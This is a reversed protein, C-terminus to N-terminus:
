GPAELMLYLSFFCFYMIVAAGNRSSEAGCRRLFENANIGPDQQLYCRLANTAFSVNSCITCIFLGLKWSGPTRPCASCPNASLQKAPGSVNILEMVSVDWGSIRDVSSSLNQFVALKM